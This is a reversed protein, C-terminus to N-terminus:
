SYRSYYVRNISVVGVISSVVLVHLRVKKKGPSDTLNTEDYNYINEQPIDKISKELHTIYKELTDVTVEARALKVNEAIRQSLNPHRRIFGYVWDRGPINNNFIPVTRGSRELYNRVSIRLDDSTIPMNFEGLLILHQEFSM